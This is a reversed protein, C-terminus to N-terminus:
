SGNLKLGILISSGSAPDTGTGSGDAAVTLFDVTGGPGDVGVLRVARADSAGNTPGVVALYTLAARKVAPFTLQYTGTTSRTLACGPPLGTATGVAGTAGIAVSADFEVVRRAGPESHLVATTQGAISEFGPM